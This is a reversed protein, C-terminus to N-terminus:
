SKKGAPTKSYSDSLVQRVDNQPILVTLSKLLTRFRCSSQSGNRSGQYKKSDELAHDQELHLTAVHAGQVM